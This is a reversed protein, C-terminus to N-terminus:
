LTAERPFDDPTDEAVMEAGVREVIDPRLILLAGGKLPMGDITEGDTVLRGSPNRLGIDVSRETLLVGSIDASDPVEFMAETLLKELLTRLGRAGTARRLAARAVARLAGDTFELSVGHMDMLRQYQRGVANRPGMLVRVLEEQGLSRLPVIIPFRGVFEPILGYKVLDLPEAEMMTDDAALRKRELVEDEDETKDKWDRAARDAYERANEQANHKALAESHEFADFTRKQAERYVEEYTEERAEEFPVGKGLMELMRERFLTAAQADAAECAADKLHRRSADSLVGGLEKANLVMKTVDPGPAIAGKARSAKKPVSWLGDLRHSIVHELGSFAGGCIFLIDTTDMVVSEGRPNKRGGKEPVNVITGEVMKLLAQQVGEGSVDRTISINESKRSLKDIEDIYVIGRQAAALDFKAAQLLKYLLSEVDEGVYGAQTLTTADAIVIPVNVFEALTKALLTKGSGTPGCMLINSKELRVCELENAPPLVGSVDFPAGWRARVGGDGGAGGVLSRRGDGPRLPANLAAASAAASAAAAAADANPGSVEENVPWWERMGPYENRREHVMRARHGLDQAAPMSGTAVDQATVGGGGAASGSTDSMWVRKYHNYVAVALVKKAHDQGVVFGDLMEVM